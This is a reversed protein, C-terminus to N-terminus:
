LLASTTVLKLNDLRLDGEKGEVNLASFSVRFTPYYNFAAWTRGLNIYIHRWESSPNVVMVRQREIAGGSSSRAHMYVEFPIDSRSDLELYIIATPDNVVFDRKISFPVTILTDPVHVSAYGRGSCAEAPADRHWQISDVSLSGETATEPSYEFPEFLLIGKRAVRHMVSLTDLRLTDGTTLTLGRLTDRTYFPYYSQLGSIGSIKVAPSVVLYEVEGNYLVPATFPLQYLGLMEVKTGDKYLAEVYCSVIDASCFGEAATYPVGPTPVLRIADINLFSPAVFDEDNCSALLLTATMAVILQRLNM